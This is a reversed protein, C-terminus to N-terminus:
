KSACEDNLNTRRRYRPRMKPPLLPTDCSAGKMKPLLLSAPEPVPAPNAGDMVLWHAYSGSHIDLTSIPWYDQGAYGWRGLTMIFNSNLYIPSPTGTYGSSFLMHPGVLSNYSLHGGLRDILANVPAVNAESTGQLTVIGANQWLTRVENVTAHRFGEFRGGPGSQSLVAPYSSTNSETLDLWKLGTATDLMLIPTIDVLEAGAPEPGPFHTLLAILLLFLWRSISRTIPKM